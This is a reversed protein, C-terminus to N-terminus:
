SVKYVKKDSFYPRKHDKEIIFELRILRCVENKWSHERLHGDIDSGFKKNIRQINSFINLRVATGSVNERSNKSSQKKKIGM